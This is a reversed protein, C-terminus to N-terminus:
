VMSGSTRTMSAAQSCRGLRPSVIWNSKSRKGEGEVEVDVDVDVDTVREAAVTVTM